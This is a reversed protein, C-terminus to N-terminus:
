LESLVEKSDHSLIVNLLYKRKLAGSTVLHNLLHILPDFFGNFNVLIIKGNWNGCKSEMLFYFIEDHTGLGGPLAIIVNFNKLFFRKRESTSDVFEPRDVIPHINNEEDSNKVIIARCSLKLPTLPDLVKAILGFNVGCTLPTIGRAALNRGIDSAVEQADLCSNSTGGIVVVEKM